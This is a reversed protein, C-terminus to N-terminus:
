TQLRVTTHPQLGVRRSRGAGLPRHPPATPAAPNERSKSSCAARSRIAWRSTPSEGHQHPNAHTVTPAFMAPTTAPRLAGLGVRLVPQAPNADTLDRVSPGASGSRPRPGRSLFATTCRAPRALAVTVANKSSRPSSRDAAVRCTDASEASQCRSPDLQKHHCCTSGM